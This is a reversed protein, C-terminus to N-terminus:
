KPLIASFHDPEHFYIPGLHSLADSLIDYHDGSRITEGTMINRKDHSAILEHFQEPTKGDLFLPRTIIGLNHYSERTNTNHQEIFENLDYVLIATFNKRLQKVTYKEYGVCVHDTHIRSSSDTMSEKLTDVIMRRMENTFFPVSAFDVTIHLSVVDDPREAAYQRYANGIIRLIGTRPSKKVVMPNIVFKKTFGPIITSLDETLRGCYTPFKPFLDLDSLGSYERIFGWRLDFLCEYPLLVKFKHSRAM